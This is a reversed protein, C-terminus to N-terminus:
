TFAFTLAYECFNIAKECFTHYRRILRPSFISTLSISLVLRKSNFRVSSSTADCTLTDGAVIDRHSDPSMALMRRSLIAASDFAKCILGATIIPHSCGSSLVLAIMSAYLLSLGAACCRARSYKSSKSEFGM